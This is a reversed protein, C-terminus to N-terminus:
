VGHVSFGGGAYGGSGSVGRGGGSGSLPGTAWRPLAPECPEPRGGSAAAARLHNRTISLPDLGATFSRLRRGDPDAAEYRAWQRTLFLFVPTRQEDAPVLGSATVVEVATRSGRLAEDCLAEAAPGDTIDRLMAHCAARADDPIWGQDLVRLLHGVHHRLDRDTGPALGHLRLRRGDPDVARFRGWQGTMALFLPEAVPDAPRYGAAAAVRGAAALVGIAESGTDVHMALRCIEETGPGPDLSQLLTRAIAQAPLNHEREWLQFYLLRRVLARQDLRAVLDPRDRLVMLVALITGPVDGPPRPLHPNDLLARLLATPTHDPGDWLPFAVTRYRWGGGTDASLDFTLGASFAEELAGLLYPEDTRALLDTLRARVRPDGASQSLVVVRAPVGTRGSERASWEGYASVGAVLRVRPEHRAQPDPRLLFWALANSMDSEPEEPEHESFLLRLPEDYRTWVKTWIAKRHEPSGAWLRGLRWAAYWRAAPDRAAALVDVLTGLHIRASVGSLPRGAGTGAWVTALWGVPSWAHRAFWEVVFAAM